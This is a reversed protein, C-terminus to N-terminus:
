REVEVDEVKNRLIQKDRGLEINRSESLTDFYSRSQQLFTFEEDERSLAFVGLGTALAVGVGLVAGDSLLSSSAAQIPGVQDSVIDSARKGFYELTSDALVTGGFPISDVLAGDAPLANAPPLLISRLTNGPFCPVGNGRAATTSLVTATPEEPALGAVAPSPFGNM